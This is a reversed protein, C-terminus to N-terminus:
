RPQALGHAATRRTGVSETSRTTQSVPAGALAARADAFTAVQGGFGRQFSVADVADEFALVGPWCCLNIRSAVVYTARRGDIRRGTLADNVDIRVDDSFASIHRLGCSPCCASRGQGNPLIVDWRTRETSKPSGARTDRPEHDVWEIWGHRKTVIGERVLYAIDRHITMRSVALQATLEAVSLSNRQQLWRMIVRRRAQQNEYDIM